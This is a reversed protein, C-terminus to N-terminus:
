RKRIKIELEPELDQEPQTPVPNFALPPFIIRTSWGDIYASNRKQGYSDTKSVITMGVPLSLEARMETKKRDFYYLLIWKPDVPQCFVGTKLLSKKELEPWIPIQANNESVLKQTQKGKRNKTKPYFEEIGTNKDGSSTTITLGTSPDIISELNHERLPQWGYPCLIDRIGRVSEIYARQGSASRADHPTERSYESLIRSNLTTIYESKLKMSKLTNKYQPTDSLLVNPIM